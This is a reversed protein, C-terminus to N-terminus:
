GHDAYDLPVAADPGQLRFTFSEELYLTVRLGDHGAYGISADRGVVLRFDGGRLSLVAAGDVAPAWVVPGDVLETVHRLIPFGGPGATQKLGTYCRPGLALAYPGDVGVQRLSETASTVAEPYQRYDESLSVPKHASHSCIGRIGAAPFGHFIATDEAHALLQAAGVVSDLKPDDAGRALAEIEDVPVEFPVRLELLPQVQRLRAQARVWPPEDLREVRGLSVASLEWGRPGEFEVLKRGALALDLAQRAEQEIAQWAPESIPALARRLDKM